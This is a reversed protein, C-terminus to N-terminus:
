RSFIINYYAYDGASDELCLSPYGECSACNTTTLDASASAESFLTAITATSVPISTSGTIKKNINQCLSQSIDLATFIIDTSASPTWEVNTANTFNWGTTSLFAGSTFSTTDKYNFGGGQPHYIKHIHPATNFPTASTPNIFDFDGFTTGTMEMQDIVGKATQAYEAFKLATLEALEDDLNQSDSQQNQNTLTVTLFGILAIGILVYIMANGRQCLKDSDRKRM